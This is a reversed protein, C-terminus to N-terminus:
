PQGGASPFKKLVGHLPLAAVPEALVFAGAAVWEKLIGAIRRATKNHSLTRTRITRGDLAVQGSLLSGYDTTAITEGTAYDVVRTRLDQNRLAINEALAEDLIPIPLGMGIYLSIGYGKIFVPKVFEPSSQRLDAVVALTAAPGLPAGTAADRDQGANYQTGEWAVYGVGGGFFIRSGIGVTRLHPDNFLPSLEGAGSYNISGLRPSLRGMYTYLPDPGSNTAANYNQYCNRPNYFYGQNIDALTFSGRLHPRPYCDTPRGWAEIEVSKGRILKHIVHAGGFHPRDASEETAGLYVDVAALGGYAPVGDLVVKQMKMTPRTHGLNLFVGSSCMPSFTATTVVDVQRAMEKIGKKRALDKAETATLVVAEKRRIRANIEQITKM